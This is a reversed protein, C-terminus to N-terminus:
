NPNPVSLRVAPDGIFTYNRADLTSTWSYAITVDDQHEESSDDLESTLMIARDAYRAGFYDTAAGAPLGDMLTSLMSRFTEVDNGALNGAWNFSYSWARDVHAFVGLGGGKPHSLLKLPLHSIFDYPAITKPEGFAQRYFSDIKPIGAGFCAFFIALTGSVDATSSIDDASFYFEPPIGNKNPVYKEFDQCLLAGTHPLLRSDDLNFNMGHSATFLLAPTEAGGLLNTLTSKTAQAPGVSRVNWEPHKSTIQRHLPAILSTSSLRTADDHGVGFFAAKKARHPQNEAAVVSQAYMAYSDLQEFYIRGVGYIFDLQYQFAFPIEDPSGVILLYFPLGLEPNAVGQGVKHRKLFDNKSEGKQYGDSGSFERYFRPNTRMAQDKRLDLLPKLANKVADLQSPLWSSPFIVGWGAEDLKAWDIGQAVGFDYPDKTTAKKIRADKLDEKSLRQNRAVKALLETNLEFDDLPLGTSGNMGNLFVQESM